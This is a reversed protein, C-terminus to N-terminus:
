IARGEHYHEKSFRGMVSSHIGWEKSTNRLTPSGYQRHNRDKTEGIDREAILTKFSVTNCGAGYGM